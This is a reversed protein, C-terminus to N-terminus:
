SIDPVKLSVSPRRALCIHTGARDTSCWFSFKEKTQLRNTNGEARVLQSWKTKNAAVDNLRSFFREQWLISVEPCYDESQKGNRHDYVTKDALGNYTHTRCYATIEHAQRKTSFAVQVDQWWLHHVFKIHVKYTLFYSSQRSRAEM